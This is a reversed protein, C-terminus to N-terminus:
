RQIDCGRQHRKRRKGQDRDAMAYINGIREPITIKIEYAGNPVIAALISQDDIHCLHYEITFCVKPHKVKNKITTL